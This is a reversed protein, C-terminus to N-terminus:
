AAKTKFDDKGALAKLFGKHIASFWMTSVVLLFAITVPYVFTEVFGAQTYVLDWKEPSSWAVSLDQFFQYFWFPFLILRFVIFALWLCGGNVMHLLSYKKDLKLEKLIWMVTLFVTSVECMGALCAHYVCRSTFLANSYAVISLVHHGIMMLRQKPRVDTMWLMPVHVLTKATYARLFMYGYDDQHTFRGEITQEATVVVHGALFVYAVYQPLCAFCDSISWPDPHEPYNRRVYERCIVESVINFIVYPLVEWGVRTLEQMWKSPLLSPGWYLALVAVLAIRFPTGWQWPKAAKRLEKTLTNGGLSCLPSTPREPPGVSDDASTSENSSTEETRRPALQPSQQPSKM